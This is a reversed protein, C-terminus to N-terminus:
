SKKKKKPRPQIERLIMLRAAESILFAKAYDPQRLAGAEGYQALLFARKERYHQQVERLHAVPGATLCLAFRRELLDLLPTVDRDKTAAPRVAM